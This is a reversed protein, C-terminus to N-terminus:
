PPDTIQAPWRPIRLSNMATSEFPTVRHGLAMIGSQSLKNGLKATILDPKQETVQHLSCKLLQYVGIACGRIAELPCSPARCRSVACCDASRRVAIVDFNHDFDTDGTAVARSKFVRVWSRPKVVFRHSDQEGEPLVVVFSTTTSYVDERCRVQVGVNGIEGELSEPKKSLSLPL